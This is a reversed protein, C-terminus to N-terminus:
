NDESERHGNGNAKPVRRRAAASPYVTNANQTASEIRLSINSISEKVLGTVISVLMRSEPNCERTVKTIFGYNV